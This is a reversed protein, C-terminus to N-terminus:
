RLIASELLTVVSGFILPLLPTFPNDNAAALLLLLGSALAHILLPLVLGRRKGPLSLKPRNPGSSRAWATTVVTLNTSSCISCKNSPRTGRNQCTRCIYGTVRDRKPRELRRRPRVERLLGYVVSSILGTFLCVYLSSSDILPFLLSSIWTGLALYKHNLGAFGFLNVLLNLATVGFSVLTLVIIAWTAYGAAVAWPESSFIGDTLFSAVIWISVWKFGAFFSAGFAGTALLLWWWSFGLRQM